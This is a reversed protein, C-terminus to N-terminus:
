QYKPFEKLVKGTQFQGSFLIATWPWSSVHVNKDFTLFSFFQSRLLVNRHEQKNQQALQNYSPRLRHIFDEITVMWISFAISCHAGAFNNTISYLTTKVNSISSSARFSSWNKVSRILCIMVELAPRKCPVLQVTACNKKSVINKM